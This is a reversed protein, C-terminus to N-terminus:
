SATSPKNWLKRADGHVRELLLRLGEADYFRIKRLTMPRLRSTAMDLEEHVGVPIDSRKYSAHALLDAAQLGGVGAKDKFILEGLREKMEPVGIRLGTQFLQTALGAFQNQRDWVINVKWGPKRVQFCAGTMCDGFGLFFPKSPAGTTTFRGKDPRYIAGTLWKRDAVSL